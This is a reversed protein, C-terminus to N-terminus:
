KKITQGRYEELVVSRRSVCFLLRFLKGGPSPLPQSFMKLKIRYLIEIETDGRPSKSSFM